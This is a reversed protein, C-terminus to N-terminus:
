ASEKLEQDLLADQSLPLTIVFRTNPSNNDIEIKGKHNMIIGRSISLGLGTGKGVAKTTFFPRMLKEQVDFPIGDGSDTVSIIVQDPITQIEVKIWKTTLNEIADHANNLLNVLVQEIQIFRCEITLDPYESPFDLQISHNEFRAAVLEKVDTMVQAITVKDYPDNEGDRAFARLGKIIKTIRESMSLIKEANGKMASIKEENMEQGLGRIIQKARTTVVALPNNIEHAIGSAMEGLSSMRAAHMAQSRSEVVQREMEIRETVDIGVIVAANDNDYLNMNMMFHRNGNKNHIETIDGNVPIKTEFLRRITEGFVVDEKTMFGVTQGVFDEPAKGFAQALAQNVGQYVLDKSIWSVYGPIADMIARMQQQDKRTVELLDHMEKDYQLRSYAVSFMSTVQEVLQIDQAEFFLEEKRALLLMAFPNDGLKVPVLMGRRLGMSQLEKVLTDEVDLDIEFEFSQGSRFNQDFVFESDNMEGRRGENLFDALLYEYRYLKQDRDLYFIAIFDTPALLAISEKLSKELMVADTIESVELSLINLVKMKEILEESKANSRILELKQMKAEHIDSLSGALRVPHNKSDWIAQGKVRFWRYNGYKDKLRYELDYPTRFKLHERLVKPLKVQDEPHILDTFHNLTQPLEEESYGLIERLKNSFFLGGKLDWDWITDSSGEIALQYRQQSEGLEQLMMKEKQKSSAAEERMQALRSLIFYTVFSTILSLLFGIFLTLRSNSFDINEHFEKTEKIQIGLVLDDNVLSYKRFVYEASSMSEGVKFTLVPQANDINMTPFVEAIVKNDIFNTIERFHETPNIELVAWGTMNDATTKENYKFVPIVMLLNKADVFYWFVSDSVSPKALAKFFSEQNWWHQHGPDEEGVGVEFLPESSNKPLYYVERIGPYIKLASVSDLYIALVERTVEVQSNWWVQLQRVHSLSSQIHDNLYNYSRESYRQFTSYAEKRSHEKWRFYESTTFGIGVLFLLCPIIIYLKSKLFTM